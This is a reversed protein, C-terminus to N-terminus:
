SAVRALSVQQADAFQQETSSMRRGVDRRVMQALKEPMQQYPSVASHLFVQIDRFVAISPSPNSIANSGLPWTFGFSLRSERANSM